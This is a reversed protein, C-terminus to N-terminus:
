YSSEVMISLVTPNVLTPDATRAWLQSRSSLPIPVNVPILFGIGNTVQTKDPGVIAGQLACILLAGRRRPDAPLIEETQTIQLVRASVTQSPTESVSVPGLVEVPITEM